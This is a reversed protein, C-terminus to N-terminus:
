ETTAPTPPAETPPAPDSPLEPAPAPTPAPLGEPAPSPAPAAPRDPTPARQVNLSFGSLGSLRVVDIVRIVHDYVLTRDAAILARVQPNRAVEARLAVELAEYTTPEGNLYLQGQSDLLVSVSDPLVEGATAASPLEANIAARVIIASTAIFIVLLVLAVDVLPTVNIGGIVDEDNSSFGAM